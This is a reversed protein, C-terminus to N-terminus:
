DHIGHATAHGGYDFLCRGHPSTPAQIGEFDGIPRRFQRGIKHMVGTAWTAMHAGGVALSPLSIGRGVALCAMLMAWGRGVQELGGIVADLPIFVNTKLPAM